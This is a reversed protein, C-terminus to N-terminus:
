AFRTVPRDLPANYFIAADKERGPHSGFTQFFNCAKQIEMLQLIALIRVVFPRDLNGFCHSAM